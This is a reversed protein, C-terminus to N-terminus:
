WSLWHFAGQHDYYGYRGTGPYWRATYYWTVKVWRGTEEDWENEEVAVTIDSTYYPPFTDYYGGEASYWRHSGLFFFWPTPVWGNHPHFRGLSHMRSRYQFNDRYYGQRNHSDHRPQVQPNFRQQPVHVPRQVNFRQQPVHIPRQVNFRQQPVHIPRQVNFRQQPVHIPRQVNFRQQPVHIPGGGHPAVHVGAGPHSGPHGAGRALASSAGLCVAFMFALSLIFVKRSM